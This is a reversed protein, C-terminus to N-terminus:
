RPSSTARSRGGGGICALSRRIPTNASACRLRQDGGAGGPMIRRLQDQGRRLLDEVDPPKGGRGRPGQGNGRPPGGWLGGGSMGYWGM